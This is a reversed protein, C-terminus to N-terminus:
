GEIRQIARLYKEAEDEDRFAAVMNGHKDFVIYKVHGVLPGFRLTISKALEGVASSCEKRWKVREKQKAKTITM